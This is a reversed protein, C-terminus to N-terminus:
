ATRSCSPGESLRDLADIHLEISEHRCHFTYRGVIRPVTLWRFYCSGLLIVRVQLVGKLRFVKGFEDIWDRARGSDVDAFNGLVWSGTDKPSKLPRLPSVARRAFIRIVRLAAYVTLATGTALVAKVILKASM